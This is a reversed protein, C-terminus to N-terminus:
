GGGRGRVRLVRQDPGPLDGAVRREPVAGGSGGGESGGKAVFAGPESGGGLRDHPDARSRDRQVGHACGYQVRREGTARLVVRARDRQLADRGDVLGHGAVPRRHLPDPLVRRRFDDTRRRSRVPRPGRPVPRRPLLAGRADARDRDRVHRHRRDGRDISGVAGARAGARGGRIRRAAGREVGARRRVRARSVPHARVRDGVGGGGGAWWGGSRPFGVVARWSPHATSLWALLVGVIVLAAAATSAINALDEDDIFRLFPVTAVGGLLIALLYVALAEWWSWTAKPRVHAPPPPPPGPVPHLGDPRPPVHEASM